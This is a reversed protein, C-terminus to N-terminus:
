AGQNYGLAPYRFRLPYFLHQVYQQPPACYGDAFVMNDRSCYVSYWLKNYAWNWFRRKGGGAVFKIIELVIATLVGLPIAGALSLVATVFWGWGFPTQFFGINIILDWAVIGLALSGLVGFFTPIGFKRPPSFRQTFGDQTMSGLMMPAFGQPTFAIGSTVTQSTGRDLINGVWNLQDNQGCVPCVIENM